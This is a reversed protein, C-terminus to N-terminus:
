KIFLLSINFKSTSKLPTVHQKTKYGFLEFLKKYQAFQPSQLHTKYEFECELRKNSKDYVPIIVSFPDYPTTPEIVENTNDCEETCKTRKNPIKSLLISAAIIGAILVPLVIGLIIWLKKYKCKQTLNENSTSNSIIDNQGNNNERTKRKTSQEYKIVNDDNNISM